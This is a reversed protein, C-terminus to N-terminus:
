NTDPSWGLLFGSDMNEYFASITGLEGQKKALEAFDIAFETRWANAAQTTGPSAIQAFTLGGDVSNSQGFGPGDSQAFEAKVYTGATFRLMADAGFVTQDAAELTDRQATAGIRLTEGLWVTGRGGVTYGDLDGVNPSYEYRVVLVPINGSSSGDRVTRGSSAVSSLPKLLTLRGNFPDFDYDERPHLEESELVIGTERDRIEVRVRESGVSVDQRELFYLSGGTGRFEERAPVTGPDSAFALVQAKREGFSTTGASNVDILAGFLGRDLQALEAGTAQAVFNGVVAQSIGNDLRAYFRGQTPADEVLTSDDGYTPYYQESNLRRLLQRPDKRDLNSFLDEVPAEGTDLATTLRWDRSIKGKAYFAARGVAFSGEALTDGSVQRAPGSSFSRGLTIEGQGVVFWKNHDADIDRVAAFKIDDGQGITISISKTDSSIIQESVFRGNDDVPVVQGAVRVVEQEPDAQGTVTVKSVDKMQITRISAEDKTGFNERSPAAAADPDVDLATLEEPATEDFQGDRDYVRLVYFLDQPADKEVLWSGAGDGDLEVTAYPTSAPTDGEVFIRLESKDILSPYNTYGLFTAREGRTVLRVDEVLGVSLVPDVHATETRVEIAYDAANAAESRAVQGNDAGSPTVSIAVGGSKNPEPKDLPRSSDTEQAVAPSALGVMALTSAGLLLQRSTTKSKTMKM